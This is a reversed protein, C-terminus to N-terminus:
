RDDMYSVIISDTSDADDADELVVTGGTMEILETPDEEEVAENWGYVRVVVHVVLGSGIILVLAVLNAHPIGLVEEGGTANFVSMIISGIGPLLSLIVANSVSSGYAWQRQPYNRKLVVYSVLLLIVTCNFLLMSSAVLVEFPLLALIALIFGDLLVIAPAIRHHTDFMWRVWTSKSRSAKALFRKYRLLCFVQLAEDCVLSSGIAQGAQAIIAGFTVMLELWRGAIARSINSFNGVEYHDINPDISLSLALPVVTQTFVLPILILFARPFNLDPREVQAALTGPNCDYLYM